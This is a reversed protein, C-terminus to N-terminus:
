GALCIPDVDLHVNGGAAIRFIILKEFERYASVGGMDNGAVSVEKREM